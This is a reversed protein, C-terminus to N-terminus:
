PANTTPGNATLGNTGSFPTGQLSTPALNFTSSRPAAALNSFYELSAGYVRGAYLAQVQDPRLSIRYLAPFALSCSVCNSTVSSPRGLYGFAAAQFQTGGTSCSTSQTGTAPAGDVYFCVQNSPYNYAVVIHHWLGDVCSASASIDLGTAILECVTVNRVRLPGTSNVQEMLGKSGTATNKIWAAQTWSSLVSSPSSSATSPTLTFPVTTTDSGYLWSQGTGPLQPNRRTHAVDFYSIPVSAFIAAHGANNPHIGDGFDLTTQYACGNAAAPDLLADFRDWVEVGLTDFYDEMDKALLCGAATFGGLLTYAPGGAQTGASTTLTLHTSDTVSAITYAVSNITISRAAWNVGTVFTSGTAWTVATGVTNVTGSYNSGNPAAGWVIPIAGIGDVMKVLASVNTTFTQYAAATPTAGGTENFITPCIVVFQPLLPAVTSYFGAVLAASSEGPTSANVFTYASLATTLLGSASNAYTTAGTGACISSGYFVVKSGQASAAAGAPLGTLPTSTPTQAFALATGLLLTLLARKV